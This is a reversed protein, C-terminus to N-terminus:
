MPRSLCSTSYTKVSVVAKFNDFKQLSNLIRQFGIYTININSQVRVTVM